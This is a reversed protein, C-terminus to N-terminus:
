ESSEGRIWWGLEELREALDRLAVVYEAPGGNDEVGLAILWLQDAPPLSEFASIEEVQWM